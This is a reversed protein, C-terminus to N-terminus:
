LQDKASTESADFYYDQGKYWVHAPTNHKYDGEYSDTIFFESVLVAGNYNDKIEDLFWATIESPAAKSVIVFYKQNNITVTGSVIDTYRLSCFGRVSDMTGNFLFHKNDLHYNMVPVESYSKKAVVNIAKLCENSDFAILTQGDGRYQQKVSSYDGYVNTDPFTAILADKILSSSHTQVIKRVTQEDKGELQSVPIFSMFSTPWMHAKQDDGSLGGMSFAGLLGGTAFGAVSNLVTSGTGPINNGATMPEDSDENGIGVGAFKGMQAINLAFSKDEEWQYERQSNFEVPEPLDPGTSMCGTLLLTSSLSATLILKKIM